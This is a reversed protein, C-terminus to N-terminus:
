PERGGPYNPLIEVVEAIVRGAEGSLCNCRGYLWRPGDLALARVMLRNAQIKFFGGPCSRHSIGHTRLIRGLPTRCEIVQRRAPGALAPLAIRIAGYEFPRKSEAGQLVVHRFLSEGDVARALVRLDAKERYYEELTPTMDHRHALLRRCPEPITRPDVLEAVSPPAEAMEQYFAGLLHLFKPCEGVIELTERVPVTTPLDM